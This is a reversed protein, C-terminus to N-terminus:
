LALPVTVPTKSSPLDKAPKGLQGAENRGWCVVTDDDLIACAHNAGAAINRAHEVALVPKNAKPTTVRPGLAGDEDNGMCAVKGDAFRVCAFYDGGVAQEVDASTIPATVMVQPVHTCNTDACDTESSPQGVGLEGWSDEGFCSIKGEVVVCTRQASAFVDQVNSLDPVIAPTIVQQSSTPQGAQGQKNSGWCLVEGSALLACSHQNGMALRHLDAPKAVADVASALTLWGSSSNTSGDGLEGDVYDGWCLPAAEMRLLCSHSGGVSVHRADVINMDDWVLPVPKNSFDSAPIEGWCSLNGGYDPRQVHIACNLFTGSSLQQVEPLDIAQVPTSWCDVMEGAVSCSTGHSAKGDGLEGRHNNGWCFVRGQRTRVCSHTAGLALEEPRDKGGADANGADHGPGADSGADMGADHAVQADPQPMGGADDLPSQDDAHGTWPFIVPDTSSMCGGPGCTGLEKDEDECSEFKNGCSQVLDMRLMLLQGTQFRVRAKRRVVLASAAASGSERKRGEVVVEIAAQDSSDPAVGLILPFKKGLSGGVPVTLKQLQASNGGVRRVSFFVDDLQSPVDYDTDVVVVIESNKHTESCGGLLALCLALLVHFGAFDSSWIDGSSPLSRM